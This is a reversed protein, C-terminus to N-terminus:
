SKSQIPYICLLLQPKIQPFTMALLYSKKNHFNPMNNQSNLFSQILM